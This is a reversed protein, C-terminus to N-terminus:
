YVSWDNEVPEGSNCQVNEVKPCVYNLLKTLVELRDKAPMEAFAAPLRTLEDYIIDKLLGRLERTLRNPTGTERGGTKLGKAM